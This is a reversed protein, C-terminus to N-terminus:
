KDNQEAKKCCLLRELKSTDMKQKMPSLPSHMEERAFDVADTKHMSETWKGGQTSKQAGKQADGRIGERVDGRASEQISEQAGGLDGAREEFDGETDPLNYIEGDAGCLLVYLMAPIETRLMHREGDKARHMENELSHKGIRAVKIPIGKEHAMRCALHEATRMCWANRDDQSTHCLYGMDWEAHSKELGFHKGYVRNDTVLVVSQVKRRGLEKLQELLGLLAPFGGDDDAEEVKGNQESEQEKLVGFLIVFDGDGAQELGCVVNKGTLARQNEQAPKEREAGTMAQQGAEAPMERETGTMAQQGAEVSMGQETGGAPWLKEGSLARRVSGLQESDPGCVVVRKGVPWKGTQGFLAEEIEQEIWEAKKM